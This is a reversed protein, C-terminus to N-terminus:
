GTALWQSSFSKFIIHGRTEAEEAEQDAMIHVTKTGVAVAMFKDTWWAKRVM